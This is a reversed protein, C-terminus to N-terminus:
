KLKQDGISNASGACHGAGLPSEGPGRRNATKGNAGPQPWVTLMVMKWLDWGMQGSEVRKMRSVPAWPRQRERERERSPNCPQGVAM